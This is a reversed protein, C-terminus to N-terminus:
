FDYRMGRDVQILKRIKKKQFFFCVNLMAILYKQLHLGMLWLVLAQKKDVPHAPIGM